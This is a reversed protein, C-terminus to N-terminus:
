LEIQGVHETAFYQIAGQAEHNEAARLWCCCAPLYVLGPTAGYGGNQASILALLARGRRAPASREATTTAASAREPVPAIACNRLVSCGPLGLNNVDSHEVLLPNNCYGQLRGATRPSCSIQREWLDIWSCTCRAGPCSPCGWWGSVVREDTVSHLLRACNPGQLGGRIVPWSDSSCLSSQSLTRIGVYRLVM